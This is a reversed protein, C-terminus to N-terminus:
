GGTPTPAPSSTTTTTAQRSKAGNTLKTLNNKDIQKRQSLIEAQIIKRRAKPALALARHEAIVSQRVDGDNYALVALQSFLAASGGNGDIKAQLAQVAGRSDNLGSPGYANVMVSAVGVDPKPPRLALYKQWSAAAQLLLAQGDATFRGTAQDLGIVSAQQAQARVLAALAAPDKPHAAVTRELKAVKQKYVKTNVSGNGSGSKFADFLGGSTAGGIGFLVLGGGMLLALSLYVIQVGRRRRKGRLDFLM